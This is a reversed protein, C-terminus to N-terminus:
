LTARFSECMRSQDSLESRQGETDPEAARIGAPRSKRCQCQFRSRLDDIDAVSNRSDRAPGQLSERQHACERLHQIVSRVLTRVMFCLKFEDPVSRGRVEVGVKARIGESCNCEVLYDLYFGLQRRYLALAEDWDTRRDSHLKVAQAM